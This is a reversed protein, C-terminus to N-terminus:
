HGREDHFACIIRRQAEIPPISPLGNNTRRFLQGKCAMFRKTSRCNLRRRRADAETMEIGGLYRSIDILHPEWDPQAVQPDSVSCVLDGKDHSDIGDEGEPKLRFLFDAAGNKGGPRYKIEFEYEALFDIWRKLRGHIDKKKVAYQLAQHDTILTFRQTSLLYVRFTKLAFIVALAERECASYKREASTMKRSAYQIPHVKRDEKRQAMVAGVGVSSADTEVVFPLEFEPFALVPSSTLNLKLEECAEQM